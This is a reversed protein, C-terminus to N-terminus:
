EAQLRPELRFSRLLPISRLAAEVRPADAALALTGHIELTDGQVKVRDVHALAGLQRRLQALLYPELDEPRSRDRLPNPRDIDPPDFALRDNVERTGPTQEAARFALMAEYASPVRGSLTVVGDHSTVQVPLAALAPRRALAQSVQRSLAAGDAATPAPAVPRAEARAPPPVPAPAPAPAPGPQPRPVGVGPFAPQPPPPPTESVLVAKPEVQLLNNVRAIGPTRMIQQGIEIRQALSAVVGRITAVGRTDLSLEISGPPASTAAPDTESMASPNLAADVLAPNLPARAAVGGWWPPYSVIPPEFGYFPDDLRGM